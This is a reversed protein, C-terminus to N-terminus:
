DRIDQMGEVYDAENITGNQHQENLEALANNLNTLNDQYVTISDTVKMFRGAQKDLDDEWKDTYYELLELYYEVTNVFIYLDFEDDLVKHAVVAGILDCECKKYILSAVPFDEKNDVLAKCIQINEAKGTGFVCRSEDYIETLHFIVHTDEKTIDKLYLNRTAAM